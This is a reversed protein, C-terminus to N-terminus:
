TLTPSREQWRTRPIVKRHAGGETTSGFRAASATWGGASASSGAEESLLDIPIGSGHLFVMDLPGNGRVQYALNTGDASRTYHNEPPDTM